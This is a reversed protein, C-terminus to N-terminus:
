VSAALTSRELAMAERPYIEFQRYYLPLHDCFKAVLVHTLLGASARSRRVPLRPAPEPHHYALGAPSGRACTALSEFHPQCM